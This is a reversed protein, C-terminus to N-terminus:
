YARDARALASDAPTRGLPEGHRQFALRGDDLFRRLEAVTMSGVWKLTVSQDRPDVIYFTPLATNALPRRRYAANGPKELDLELWVFRGAQGALSEDTFVFARM